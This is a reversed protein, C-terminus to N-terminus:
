APIGEPEKQSVNHELVAEGVETKAVCLVAADEGFPTPGYLKWEYSEVMVTFKRTAEKLQENDILLVVIDLEEQMAIFKNVPITLGPCVLDRADFTAVKAALRAQESVKAM